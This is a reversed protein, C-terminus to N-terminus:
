FTLSFNKQFATCVVFIFDPTDKLINTAQKNFNDKQDLPCYQTAGNLIQRYVSLRGNMLQAKKELALLKDKKQWFLKEVRQGKGEKYDNLDKLDPHSLPLSTVDDSYYFWKNNFQSFKTKPVTKQQM